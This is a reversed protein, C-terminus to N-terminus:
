AGTQRHAGEAVRAIGAACAWLDLSEAHRLVPVMLGGDTQAAIGLHVATARSPRAPTTTLAPTSRRFHRLALVM